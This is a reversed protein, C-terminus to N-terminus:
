ENLSKESDELGVEDSFSKPNQYKIIIQIIMVNTTIIIVIHHYSPYINHGVSLSSSSSLLSLSLASSETM